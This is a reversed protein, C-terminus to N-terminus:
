QSYSSWEWSSVYWQEPAKAAFVVQLNGEPSSSGTWTYTWHLTGQWPASASIGTNKLATRKPKGLLKEVEEVSMGQKLSVANREAQALSVNATPRSAQALAPSIWALSPLLAAILVFTAGRTTLMALAQKLGAFYGYRWYLRDRSGEDIHSQDGHVDLGQAALWAGLEEIKRRLAAEASMGDADQPGSAPMQLMTQSNM